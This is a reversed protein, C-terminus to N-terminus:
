QGREKRKRDRACIKCVRTNGRMRYSGEVYEHNNRCRTRMRASRSVNEAHTVPELHDPNICARRMCLHDIDYGDPIDAVYVSYVYRHVLVDTGKISLLAYGDPTTRGTWILCPTDLPGPLEITTDTIPM